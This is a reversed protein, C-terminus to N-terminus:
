KKDGQAAPSTAPTNITPQAPKEEVKLPEFVKRTNRYEDLIKIASQKLNFDLRYNDKEETSVDKNKFIAIPIMWSNDLTRNGRMLIVIDCNNVKEKSIVWCLEEDKDKLTEPFSSAVSYYKKDKYITFDFDSNDENNIKELITVGSKYLYMEASRIASEGQPYAELYLKNSLPTPPTVPTRPVEPATTVVPNTITTNDNGTNGPNNKIDPNNIVGLPNKGTFKISNVFNIITQEYNNYSTEPATLIVGILDPGNATMFYGRTTMVRGNETWKGGTGVRISKAYAWEKTDSLVIKFIATKDDKLTTRLTNLVQNASYESYSSPHNKATIVINAGNGFTYAYKMVKSSLDTSFNNVDQSIVKNPVSFSFFFNSCNEATSICVAIYFILIIPYIKM